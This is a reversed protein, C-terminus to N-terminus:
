LILPVWLHYKKFFRCKRSPCDLCNLWLLIDDSWEWVDDVKEIDKVKFYFLFSFTSLTFVTQDDSGLKVKQFKNSQFPWFYVELRNNSSMSILKQYSISKVQLYTTRFHGSAVEEEELFYRLNVWVTDYQIFSLKMCVANLITLTLKTHPNSFHIEDLLFFM